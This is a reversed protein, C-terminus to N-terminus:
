CSRVKSLEDIRKALGQEEELTIRGGGQQNLIDLQQRLRQFEGERDSAHRRLREAEVTRQLLQTQAVQLEQNMQELDSLQTLSGLGCSDGGAGICVAGSSIAIRTGAPSTAAAMRPSADSTSAGEGGDHRPSTAGGVGLDRQAAAASPKSVELQRRLKACMARELELAHEARQIRLATRDM